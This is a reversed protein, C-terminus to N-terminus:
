LERLVDQDVLRITCETWGLARMALLIANGILVRNRYVVLPTGQGYKELSACLAAIRDYSYRHTAHPNLELSAVPM